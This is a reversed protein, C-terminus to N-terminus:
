RSDTDNRYTCGARVWGKVNDLMRLMHRLQNGKYIRGDASYFEGIAIYEVSNKKRSEQEKAYVFGEYSSEFFEQIGSDLEVVVFITM